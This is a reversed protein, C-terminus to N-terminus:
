IDKQDYVRCIIVRLTNILAALEPEQEIKDELEKQIVRLNYYEDSTFPYQCSALLAYIRQVFQLHNAIASWQEKIWKRHYRLLTFQTKSSLSYFLDISDKLFSETPYEKIYFYCFWGNEDNDHLKPLSDNSLPRTSCLSNKFDQFQSIFEKEEDSLLSFKASSITPKVQHFGKSNPLQSAEFRVLRLYEEGTQPISSSNFHPDKLSAVPLASHQLSDFEGESNDPSSDSSPYFSSADHALEGEELDSDVSDCSADEVAGQESEYNESSDITEEEIPRKM